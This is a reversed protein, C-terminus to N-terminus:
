GNAKVWIGGWSLTIEVEPEPKSAKSSIKQPSVVYHVFGFFKTITPEAIQDGSGKANIL